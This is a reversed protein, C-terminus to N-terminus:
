LIVGHFCYKVFLLLAMIFLFFLIISAVPYNNLFEDAYTPDGYEKGDRRKGTMGAEV